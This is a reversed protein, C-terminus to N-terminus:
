LVDSQFSKVISNYLFAKMQVADVDKVTHKMKLYMLYSVLVNVLAMNLLSAPAEKPILGEEKAVNGFKELKEQLIKLAETRHILMDRIEDPIKYEVGNINSLEYMFQNTEQHEEMFEFIAYLINRFGTVQAVKQLLVQIKQHIEYFIAKGILEEKSKFYEYTTGKGVGARQAIMSVKLNAMSTGEKILSLVSEYLAVEKPSCNSFLCQNKM